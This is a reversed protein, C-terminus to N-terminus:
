EGLERWTMQIGGYYLRGDATLSVVLRDDSDDDKDELGMSAVPLDVPYCQHRSVQEIWRRIPEAHPPKPLARAGADWPHIAELGVEVAAVGADRLVAAAALVAACSVEGSAEVSFGTREREVPSRRQLMSDAWPGLDNACSTVAPEVGWDPTLRYQAAAGPIVELIGVTWPVGWTREDWEWKPNWLKERWLGDFVTLDIWAGWEDWTCRVSSHGAAGLAALVWQVHM